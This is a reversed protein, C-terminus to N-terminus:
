GVVFAVFDWGTDSLVGKGKAAASAGEDLKACCVVVVTM